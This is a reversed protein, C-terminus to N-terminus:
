SDKAEIAGPYCVEVCRPAGGCLDCKVAVERDVNFVIGGYPCASLCLRCGHCKEEDITVIGSSSDRGIAGTACVDQCWFEPCQLCVSPKSFGLRSNSAIKICSLSPRFEGEKGASCILECLRCGTCKSPDVSLM